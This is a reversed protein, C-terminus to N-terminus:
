DSSPTIYLKQMIQGAKSIAANTKQGEQKVLAKM